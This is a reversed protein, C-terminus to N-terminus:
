SKVQGMFNLPDFAGSQQSQQLWSSAAADQQQAIAMLKQADASNPDYKLSAAIASVAEKTTAMNTPSGWKGNLALSLLAFDRELKALGMDGVLGETEKIKQPSLVTRLRQWENFAYKDNLTPDAFKCLTAYAKDIDHPGYIKALDDNVRSQVPDLDPTKDKAKALDHQAHNLQIMAQGGLDLNLGDLIYNGNAHAENRDGFNTLIDWDSKEHVNSFGTGVLSGKQLQVEALATRMAIADRRKADWEADTTPKKDIATLDQVRLNLYQPRHEGLAKWADIESTLSGATRTSQDKKEADEAANKAQTYDSHATQYWNYLMSLGIGTAIVGAKRGRFEEPIVSAVGATLGIMANGGTSPSFAATASYPGDSQPLLVHDLLLGAAYTGAVLKAKDGFSSNRNSFIIPMAAMNLGAGFAGVPDGLGQHHDNNNIARDLYNFGMASLTTWAAGQMFAGTKNDGLWSRELAVERGPLSGAEGIRGRIAEYDDASLIPQQHRRIAALQEEWNADSKLYGKFEAREADSLTPMGALERVRNADAGPALYNQTLARRLDKDQKTLATEVYHGAKDVNAQADKPIPLQVSVLPDTTNFARRRFAIRQFEDQEAATLTSAGKAQLSNLLRENKSFDAQTTAVFRQEEASLTGGGQARTQLARYRDDAQWLGELQRREADDLATSGLVDTRYKMLKETDGVKAGEIYAHHRFYENEAPLLADTHAVRPDTSQRVFHSYKYRLSQNFDEPNLGVFGQSRKKFLEMEEPTFVNRSRNFQELQTYRDMLQARNEATPKMWDFLTLRSELRDAATLEEATRTSHSVTSLRELEAIDGSRVADLRTSADRLEPAVRTHAVLELPTKKSPDYALDASAQLLKVVPGAGIVGAVGGILYQNLITGTLGYYGAVPTSLNQTEAAIAANLQARQPAFAALQRAAQDQPTLPPAINSGGQGNRGNYNPNVGNAANQELEAQADLVRRQNDPDTGYVSHFQQDGAISGPRVYGAVHNKNKWADQQALTMQEWGPVHQDFWQRQQAAPMSDFNDPIGAPNVTQPPTSGPAPGQDLGLGGIRSGFSSQIQSTSNTGTIDIMGNPGIANTPPSVDDIQVLHHTGTGTVPPKDLLASKLLADELLPQHPKLADSGVPTKDSGVTM